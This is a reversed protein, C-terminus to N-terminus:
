FLEPEIYQPRKTDAIPFLINKHKEYREIIGETELMWGPFGIIIRTNENINQLFKKESICPLGKFEKLASIRTPMICASIRIGLGSLADLFREVVWNYENWPDDFGLLFIEHQQMPYNEKLLEWLGKLGYREEAYSTKAAIWQLNEQCLISRYVGTLVHTISYEVRGMFIKRSLDDQLANYIRSIQEYVSEALSDQKTGEGKYELAYELKEECHTIEGVIEEKLEANWGIIDGHWRRRLNKLFEKM